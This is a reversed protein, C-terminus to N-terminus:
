THQFVAQRAKASQHIRFKPIQFGNSLIIAAVAHVKYCRLFSNEKIKQSAAAPNGMPRPSPCPPLVGGGGGGGRPPAGGGGWGVIKKSFGRDFGIGGMPRVEWKLIFGGGMRGGWQFTFCGEM